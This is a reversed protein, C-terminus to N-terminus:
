GIIGSFANYYRPLDSTKKIRDNYVQLMELSRHRTYQAVELLDGKFQKILATTFYHRFGHTTNDISLSSLYNTVLARLSRTTLRYNIHNNSLCTFLPGDAIKCTELYLRVAKLAEPHLDIAEKDDRGKGRIMATSSGLNIDNVDLRVIEIQRLGQFILLAMITKLRLLKKNTADFSLGDWVLKVQDESLGSRKHKKDQQFSKVNATTDPFKGTKSLERLFVRASVLYKNKTSVSIDVRKELHRKFLLFSNSNFSGEGKIFEWFYEFHSKYDDRTTDSIDLQNFIQSASQLSDHKIVSNEM